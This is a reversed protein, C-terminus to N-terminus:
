MDRGLIGVNTSGLCLFKAKIGDFQTSVNRQQQIRETNVNNQHSNEEIVHSNTLHHGYGRRLTEGTTQLHVVM